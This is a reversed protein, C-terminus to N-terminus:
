GRLPPPNLIPPPLSPTRGIKFQSLISMKGSSKIEDRLAQETKHSGVDSSHRILWIMFLNKM